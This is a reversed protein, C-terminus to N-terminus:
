DLHLRTVELKVFKNFRRILDGKNLSNKLFDRHEDDKSMEQSDNENHVSKGKGATQSM